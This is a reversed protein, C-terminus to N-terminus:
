DKLEKVNSLLVNMNGDLCVMTGLFFTHNDNLKVEVERGLMKKLFDAPNNRQKNM